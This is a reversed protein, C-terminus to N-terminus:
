SIKLIDVINANRSKETKKNKLLNTLILNSSNSQTNSELKIPIKRFLM